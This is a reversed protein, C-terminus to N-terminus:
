ITKFLGSTLSVQRRLETFGIIEIDTQANSLGIQDYLMTTLNGRRYYIKLELGFRYNVHM